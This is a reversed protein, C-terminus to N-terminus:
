RKTYGDALLGDIHKKLDKKNKFISIGYFPSGDKHKQIGDHSSVTYKARGIGHQEYFLKKGALQKRAEKLATIVQDINEVPIVM